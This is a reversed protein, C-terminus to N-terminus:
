DAVVSAFCVPDLGIRADPKLAVKLERPGRIRGAAAPVVCAAATGLLTTLPPVLLILMALKMERAEIKKGLYEPSRGVMLGAVFVAVIAYVIMGAVGTGVGGFVVEGLQMMWLTVLGGLPSLSDHMADVAGTSTATTAAAFLAAVLPRIRDDPQRLHRKGFLDHDIVLRQPQRQLRM